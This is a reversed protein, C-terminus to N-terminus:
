FIGAWPYVVKLQAECISYERKRELKPLRGTEPFKESKQEGCDRRWLPQLWIPLFVSKARGIKPPKSGPIPFAESQSVQLRKQRSKSIFSKQFYKAPLSSNKVASRKL